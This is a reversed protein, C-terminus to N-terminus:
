GALTASALAAELAPLAIRLGVRDAESRLRELEAMLAADRRGRGFAALARGRAIFFDSFPLPEARTFDELLKAYREVSDWARTRLAAEIAFHYFWLHNHSVAGARLLSEGEDLARQCEDPDTTTAALQGLLWPGVFRIGTERSIAVGRQLLEVAERSRGEAELLAAADRLRVAEFRRAGLGQILWVRREIHERASAMDGLLRLVNCAASHAIMEARHHGVRAAAAAAARCDELAPRLENLYTRTAPVMSLNAVEIRGLGHARCLEVCRMFHKHASAMRGRAYEADGLGGLATAELEASGAQRALEWSREHERVCGDIDGRPFFLNGRLDHIRALEPVLGLAIAEAEARELDAFAGELDDAVRKVAALGIWARCREAGTTPWM